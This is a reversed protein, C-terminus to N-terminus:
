KSAERVTRSAEFKEVKLAAGAHGKDAARRFCRLAAHYDRPVGRGNTHCAGLNYLAGPYGQAAALRYWKVAEDDSQVVGKGGYFATGL